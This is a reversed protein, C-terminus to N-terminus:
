QKKAATEDEYGVMKSMWLYGNQLGGWPRIERAGAQYEKNIKANEAEYQKQLEAREKELLAKTERLICILSPALALPVKGSLIFDFHMLAPLYRHGPWDEVHEISKNSISDVNTESDDYFPNTSSDKSDFDPFSIRKLDPNSALKLRGSADVDAM